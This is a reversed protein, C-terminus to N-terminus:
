NGGSIDDEPFLDKWEELIAEAEEVAGSSFMGKKLIEFMRRALMAEPQFAFKKFEDSAANEFVRKLEKQTEGEPSVNANEENDEDYSDMDEANWLWFPARYAMFKPAFSAFDWDIVGTVQVTSADKVNVLLNYGKLDGHVLSFAGDLFGRKQLSRSIDAFGDWIHEWCFGKSNQYKRWRECQELLFLLANQQHEPGIDSTTGRHPVGFKEIEVEHDSPHNLNGLAIEGASTSTLEAIEATIETIRNAVCKWQEMNLTDGIKALNDGFLRSQVMYPKGLANEKSIDYKVVQPIPLSLKEAVVKLVAVERELSKTNFRPIRLIYKQPENYKTSTRMGLCGLLWKTIFKNKTKPRSVTLGVVRNFSGGKMREVDIKSGEPFIDTALEAVKTQFTEFPEHELHEYAITSTESASDDFDSDCENDSVSGDEVNTNYGNM